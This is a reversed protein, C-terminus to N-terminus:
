CGPKESGFVLYEFDHSCNECHYEYIPM